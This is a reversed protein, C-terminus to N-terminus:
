RQPAGDISRDVSLYANARSVTNAGRIRVCFRNYASKQREDYMTYVNLRSRHLSSGGTTPPPLAFLIPLIAICFMRLNVIKRM